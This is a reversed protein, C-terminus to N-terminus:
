WRHSGSAGGGPCSCDCYASIYGLYRTEHGAHCGRKCGRCVGVGKELTIDCSVCEYFRQQVLM